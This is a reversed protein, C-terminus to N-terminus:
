QFRGEAAASMLDNWLAQSEEQSYKNQRDAKQFEEMTELTWIRKEGSKPASHKTSRSPAVLAEKHKEAVKSQKQPPANQSLYHNFIEAMADANWNSNAQDMMEGFSMLGFPGKTNLFKEFEPDGNFLAQWDGQVKEDLAATFADRAATIQSEEVKSVKEQIPKSQEFFLNKGEVSILERMYDYLDEGYEEKFKALKENVAVEVKEPQPDPKKMVEGLRDIISQKLEKLEKHLQPVEKDYKSQLTKYKQQFDEAPPEEVEEAEEAEPEEELAEEEPTEEKEDPKAALLEEALEAAEEVQKPINSM